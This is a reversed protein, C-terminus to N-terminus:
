EELIYRRLMEKGTVSINELKHYLKKHERIEYTYVSILITAMGKEDCKIVGRQANFSLVGKLM